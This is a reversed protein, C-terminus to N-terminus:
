KILYLYTHSIFLSNTNTPASTTYNKDLYFLYEVGDKM